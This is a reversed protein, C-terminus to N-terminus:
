CHHNVTALSGSIWPQLVQVWNKVTGNRFLFIVVVQYNLALLVYIQLFSFFWGSWGGAAIETGPASQCSRSVVPKMPSPLTQPYLFNLTRFLIFIQNQLCPQPIVSLYNQLHPHPNVSLYNQLYPHLSVSLEAPVSTFQCIIRCTRIHISVCIIRCTCIHISLRISYSWVMCHNEFANVCYLQM